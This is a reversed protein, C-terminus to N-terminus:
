LHLPAAAAVLPSNKGSSSSKRHVQTCSSTEKSELIKLRAETSKFQMTLSVLIKQRLLWRPRRWVRKQSFTKQASAWTLGPSNWNEKGKDLIGPGQNKNRHQKWKKAIILYGSLFCHLLPLPKNLECSWTVMWWQLPSLTTPAQLLYDYGCDPASLFSRTWKSTSLM